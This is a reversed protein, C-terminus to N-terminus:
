KHAPTRSWNRAPRCTTRKRFRPTGSLVEAQRRAAEKSIHTHEGVLAAHREVGGGAVRQERPPLHHAQTLAAAALRRRAEGDLVVREEEAGVGLVLAALLTLRAEM